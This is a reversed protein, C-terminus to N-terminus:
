PEIVGCDIRRQFWRRAAAVMDRAIPYYIATANGREGPPDIEVQERGFRFRRVAYIAGANNVVACDGPSGDDRHHHFHTGNDNRVVVVPDGGFRPLVSCMAFTLM